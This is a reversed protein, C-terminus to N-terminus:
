RSFKKINNNSIEEEVTKYAKAVLESTFEKKSIFDKGQYDKKMCISNIIEMQIENLKNLNNISQLLKEEMNKSKKLNNEKHERIIRSIADGNGINYKKAIENVYDIDIQVLHFEKRIKEATM